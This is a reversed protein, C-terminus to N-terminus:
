DSALGRACGGTVTVVEITFHYRAQMVNCIVRIRASTRRNSGPELRVGFIIIRVDVVQRDDLAVQWYRNGAGHHLPVADANGHVPYGNVPCFCAQELWANSASWRPLKRVAM